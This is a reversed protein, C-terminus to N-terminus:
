IGGIRRTTIRRQNAISQAAFIEEFRADKVPEDYRFAYKLFSITGLAIVFTTVWDSTGLSDVDLFQKLHPPRRGFFREASGEDSDGSISRGNDKVKLIPM